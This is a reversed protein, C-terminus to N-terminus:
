PSGNACVWSSERRELEDPERDREYESGNWDGMDVEEMLVNGCVFLCV